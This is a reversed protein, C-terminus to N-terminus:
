FYSLPHKLYTEVIHFFYTYINLIIYLIPRYMIKCLTSKPLLMTKMPRHTKVNKKVSVIIALLQVGCTFVVFCFQFYDGREGGRSLKSNKQKICKYSTTLIQAGDVVM